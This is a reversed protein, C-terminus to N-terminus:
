NKKENILEKLAGSILDLLKQKNEHFNNELYGHRVIMVIDLSNSQYDFISDCMARVQRKIRNRTVANGTKKSVSIGVRIKNLNNPVIHTTFSQCKFTQGNKIALAFDTNEKIRNAVKM